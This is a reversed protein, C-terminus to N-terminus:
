MELTINNCILNKNTKCVEHLIVFYPLFISIANLVQNNNYQLFHERVQILILLSALILFYFYHIVYCSIFFMIFDFDDILQWLKSKYFGSRLTEGGIVLVDRGGCVFSYPNTVSQFTPYARTQLM